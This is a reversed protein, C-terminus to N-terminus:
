GRPLAVANVRPDERLIEGTKRVRFAPVYGRPDVYQFIREIRSPIEGLLGEGIMVSYCCAEGILRYQINECPRLM